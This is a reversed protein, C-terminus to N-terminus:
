SVIENYTLVKKVAEDDSWEYEVNNFVLSLNHGKGSIFVIDKPKALKIGFDIANLRSTFDDADFSVFPRDGNKIVRNIKTKLNNKNIINYEEESGIREVLMSSSGAKDNQIQTNIDALKESRPDLATLIVIDSNAAAIEGMLSRDIKRDGECGIISIIRSDPTFKLHKIYKLSEELMEPTNAIDSLILFPEKKLVNIKSTLPELNKLAAQIKEQPLYAQALRIALIANYLNDRGRLPLSYKYGDITFEVNDLTHKVDKPDDPNVWHIFINNEVKNENQMIWESTTPDQNLIVVLGEDKIKNIFDFKTAVYNEWNKYIGMNSGVVNTIIGSDFAIGEYNGQRLNNSTVEVIAYQLGENVMRGLIDHIEGPKAMNATIDSYAEFPENEAATFSYGQSSIFGVRENSNNFIHHLLHTVNTKGYTGTIGIVKIDESPNNNRKNAMLAKQRNIFTLM